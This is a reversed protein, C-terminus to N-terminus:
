SQVVINDYLNSDVEVAVIGVMVVLVVVLMDMVQPMHLVMIKLMELSFLLRLLLLM